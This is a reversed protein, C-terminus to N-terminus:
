GVRVQVLRQVCGFDYELFVFSGTQADVIGRYFAYKGHTITASQRHRSNPVAIIVLLNHQFARVGVPSQGDIHLIVTLTGIVPHHPPECSM